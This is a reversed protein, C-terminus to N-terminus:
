RGGLRVPEHPKPVTMVGDRGDRGRKVALRWDGSTGPKCTVGDTQAIHVSGGFTVSDGKAYTKGEVYVGRDLVVPVAFEFEKRQDGRSLVFKFTREGDHEMTLDDFGMGDKPAPIAALKENLIKWVGDIDCDVGDDGVVQGVDKTRGDSFTFVLHGSKDILCDVADIGDRGNSPLPMSNVAAQVMSRVIDMDVPDADKGDKPVPLAGLEDRYSKLATEIRNNIDVMDLPEADKGDIPRPIEDVAEKVLAPIDAVANKVLTQIVSDDETTKDAVIEAVFLKIADMDVDKGDKPVSLASVAEEVMKSLAIQMEPGLTTEIDARIDKIQDTTVTEDLRKMLMSTNEVIENGLVADMDKMRAQAVELADLRALLPTVAREISANVAAVIDQGFKEGDWGAM